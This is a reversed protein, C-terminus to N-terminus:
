SLAGFSSDLQDRLKLRARFLHSKITGVPLQTITAIDPISVEDVHYLTILTRALPPLTALAAGLQALSQVRSLEAELDSDDRVQLAPADNGEEGSDLELLPLRKRRLHRAGVSFAIQGIWTSLSADFRFQALRQHVRLFVEQSLERTDEADGVMRQILHWVLKQHARVLRTFAGPARALVAAVMERDDSMGAISVM